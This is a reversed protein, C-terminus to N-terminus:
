HRRALAQRAQGVPHSIHLSRAWPARRWASLVGRDAAATAGRLPRKTAFGEFAARNDCAAGPPRRLQNIRPSDNSPVSIARRIAHVSVGRDDAVVLRGLV